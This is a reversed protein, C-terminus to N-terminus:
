KMVIVRRGEIKFKVDGTLALIKLAEDLNKSRSVSGSFSLSDLNGEYNVDIDYWRSLKRMITKLDENNYIFIGDKWAIVEEPNVTNVDFNNSNLVAQQNPKLLRFDAAKGKSPSISIVKVCGELLTTTVTGEEPYANINFHTGLVEVEQTATKVIFRLRQGNKYAKAVEFYGEGNLEVSRENGTFVTPYKLSSSANLWVRTGDPLGIQYQGGKPTEITNFHVHEKTNGTNKGKSPLITYLLQGDALKTVLIGANEAIKGKAADNLNIKTGDGLTLVARNGGPKIPTAVVDGKFIKNNKKHYSFLSAGFVIIVAAAAAVMHWRYTTKHIKAPELHPIHQIEKLIHQMMEFKLSDEQEKTLETQGKNKMREYYAEVLRKEEPTASGIIYKDILLLFNNKEM